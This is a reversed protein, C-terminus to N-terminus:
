FGFSTSFLLITSIFETVEDLIFNTDFLLKHIKVLNSDLIIRWLAIYEKVLIKKRTDM